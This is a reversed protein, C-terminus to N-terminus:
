LQPPKPSEHSGYQHHRIQSTQSCSARMQAGVDADPGFGRDEQSHARLKGLVIVRVNFLGNGSM